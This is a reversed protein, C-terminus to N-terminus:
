VGLGPVPDDGVAAGRRRAHDLSGCRSAIGRRSLPLPVADAAAARHTASSAVWLSGEHDETIARPVEIGAHARGPVGPRGSHAFSVTEPCLGVAGAPTSSVDSTNERPLGEDAGFPELVGDRLRWLGGTTCIWLPGGAARLDAHGGAVARELAAARIGRARLLGARRRAARDLAPRPTDCFLIQIPEEPRVIRDDALNRWKGDVQEWLGGRLLSVFPRGDGSFEVGSIPGGFDGLRAFCGESYRLLGKQTMVWLSGDPAECVDRIANAPLQATNSARFPTFRVGDFRVLGGDTPLWLYGDRTQKLKRVVPNPLASDDGFLRVAFEEDVPGLSGVEAWLPGQLVLACVL